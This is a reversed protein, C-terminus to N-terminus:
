AIHTLFRERRCKHKSHSLIEAIDIVKAGTDALNWYLVGIISLLIKDYVVGNGTASSIQLLQKLVLIRQYLHKFFRKLHKFVARTLFVRLFIATIM